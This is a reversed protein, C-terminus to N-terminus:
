IAKYIKEYEKESYNEMKNKNLNLSYKEDYKIEGIIEFDEFLEELISEAIKYKNSKNFLIKIKDVNVEFDKIYVDLICKAKEIESFNPEILFIIKDGSYLITKIQMCNNELDIILYEYKEKLKSIYCKTHYENNINFNNFKMVKSDLLYVSKKKRRIVEKLIKSIITKGVGSPGTIIITKCRASKCSKRNKVFFRKNYTKSLKINKKKSIILKKLSEIEKELETKNKITELFIEYGDELFYIKFINKSNLYNILEEDKQKLFVIIEINKLTSLEGIIRKFEDKKSIKNSMIILDIDKKIELIELVGDLYPIDTGIVEYKEFERLKNNLFEEGIATIVKM